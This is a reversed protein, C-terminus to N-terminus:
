GNLLEEIEQEDSMEDEDDITENQAEKEEENEKDEAEIEEDSEEVIEEEIQETILQNEPRLDYIKPSFIMENLDDDLNLIQKLLSRECGYSNKNVLRKIEEKERKRVYNDFWDQWKQRRIRQKHELVDVKHAVKMYRNYQIDLSKLSTNLDKHIANQTKTHNEDGMVHPKNQIVDFVKLHEELVLISLNQKVFNTDLKDKRRFISIM